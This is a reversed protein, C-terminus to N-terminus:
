KIRMEIKHPMKKACSVAEKHMEATQKVHHAQTLSNIKIFAFSQTASLTVLVLFLKKMIDGQKNLYLYRNRFVQIM